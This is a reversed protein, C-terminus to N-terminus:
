KEGELKSLRRELSEIKAEQLKNIETLETVQNATERTLGKLEEYESLSSSLKSEAVEKDKTVVHIDYNKGMVEKVAKFILDKYRNEIWNEEFENRAKVIVKEGDIEAETGAM